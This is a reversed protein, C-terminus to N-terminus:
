TAYAREVAEALTYYSLKSQKDWHALYDSKGFRYRMSNDPIINKIIFWEGKPNQFGVYQTKGDFGEYLDQARYCSLDIMDDKQTFSQKLVDAIPQTDVPDNKVEVSVQPEIRVQKIAATIDETKIAQANLKQPLTNIAEILKVTAQAAEGDQSKVFEVLKELEGKPVNELYEVLTFITDQFSDLLETHNLYATLGLEELAARVEGSSRNSLEKLESLGTAVKTIDDSKAIGKLNNEVARTTKRNKAGELVLTREIAASGDKMTKLTKQRIAAQNSKAQQAARKQKVRELYNM